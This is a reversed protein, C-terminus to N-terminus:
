QAVERSVDREYKHICCVPVPGTIAYRRPQKMPRAQVRKKVEIDTDRGLSAQVLHRARLTRQSLCIGQLEQTRFLLEM